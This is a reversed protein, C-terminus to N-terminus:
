SEVYIEIEKWWKRGGFVIEEALEEIEGDEKTEPVYTYHKM